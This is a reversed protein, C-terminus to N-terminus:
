DNFTGVFKVKRCFSLLKNIMCRGNENQLNSEIEVYFYYSWINKKTARSKLCRMNYGYNSIVGVAKALTGAQNPIDFVIISHNANSKHMTRSFVAFRTINIDSENINEKIIDLGYIKAVDKSAIAAITKDGSMSVFKAARATNSYTQIEFNYNKIFPACQEIAQQHSIVKKINEIKTEHLAVLNHHIPYSYIGNIYLSGNFILDIVQGVEGANSNEIPLVACDCKGNEVEEYAEKFSKCSIKNGYPFIKKAAIYAYSGEIGSYSVNVGELIKHQFCRSIDMLSKQFSIYYERIEEDKIYSANTQLLYEERDKDLISLGHEKKYESVIRMEKMRKEFLKAIKEDIESIIQRANTLKDM